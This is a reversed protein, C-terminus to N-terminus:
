CFTDMNNSRLLDFKTWRHTIPTENFEAVGKLIRTKLEEWSAVRISKLFTKAMKSFLTEALNLWSGHKPTHCYIFRNPRTALYSMTEKSIHASHNDLIIKSIMPIILM